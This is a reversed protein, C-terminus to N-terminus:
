AYVDLPQRRPAVTVTVPGENQESLAQRLTDAQSRALTLAEGPAAAIHVRLAGAAFEFSLDLPGLSPADYRLAVTKAGAPRGGGRSPDDSADPNVQLQGGGPLAAVAPPLAVDAHQRALELVVRHEDIHRVVLRIEEGARVNFPLEAELVAGAINIVGRGHGDAAMVRAMLGRGPNLRLASEGVDTLLRLDVALPQM